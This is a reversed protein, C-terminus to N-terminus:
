AGINLSDIKFRVGTDISIQMFFSQSKGTPSFGLTSVKNAFEFGQNYYETGGYYSSDGYFPAVDTDPPGNLPIVVSSINYHDSWDFDINVQCPGVRRYQIRGILTKNRIDLGEQSEILQSKRTTVINTTGADGAGVGNLDYINGISDGIYVTWINEGPRRIYRAAGVNMNFALNTEYVSWPSTQKQLLIDKYLVLVKDQVFFLIKQYTEDYIIQSESLDRVTDPIYRSVDDGRVDGFNRTASLLEVNGGQRMFIVDNGINLLSETGTAASGQYFENWNYTMSDTGTLEFLQGKETSIILVDMFVAAGNIQQLDPSLMYFAENGTSFGADGNRLSTDLTLPDEFASAVMLHPTDAADAKVNFFWIRGQYRVSYKAYIVVGNDATITGTAPTAPGGTVTYTLTSATPVTLVEKEGNYPTENADAIHILDGISRGHSASYTVTAISGSRTISTLTVPSGLAINNKLRECTTGDWKMLPTSKLLDTIVLYEDLPWYTDRLKSTNDLSATRVSTFTAGDWEYMTPTTADAEFILTTETNAKTILQMIGNVPSNQTSVGKIDLPRRPRFNTDGNVLDFNQGEQCETPDTGDNENLGGSFIIRM